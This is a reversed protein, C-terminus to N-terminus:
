LQYLIHIQSITDVMCKFCKVQKFFKFLEELEDKKCVGKRAQTRDRISM